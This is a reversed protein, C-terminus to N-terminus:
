KKLMGKAKLISVIDGVTYGTSGVDGDWTSDDKSPTGSGATFGTVNGTTTRVIDRDNRGM